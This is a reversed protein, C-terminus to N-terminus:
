SLLQVGDEDEDEDLSGDGPQTRKVVNSDLLGM